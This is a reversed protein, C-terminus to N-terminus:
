QEAIPTTIRNEIFKIGGFDCLEGDTLSICEFGRREAFARINKGDPHRDINGLFYIVRGCVGSAGGIFGEDYGELRIHGKAIMLVDLGTKEAASAISADATVVANGFSLSSCAAYGQRVNVQTYGQNNLIRKVEPSTHSSLSFAFSSCMLVNLGVDRPYVDSRPSSDTIISVSTLEQLRACIGPYRSVYNAPLVAENGLTFLIMDPHCSVPRALDSDSELLVIDFKASLAEAAMVADRSLVATFKGM